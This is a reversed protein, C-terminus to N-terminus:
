LPLNSPPVPAFPSHCRRHFLFPLRHFPSTSLTPFMPSTRCLEPTGPPVRSSFRQDSSHFARKKTISSSFPREANPSKETSKTPSPRYEERPFRRRCPDPYLLEVCALPPLRRSRQISGSIFHFTLQTRRTSLPYFNM